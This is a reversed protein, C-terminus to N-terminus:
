PRRRGAEELSARVFADRPSGDYARNAADGTVTAAVSEAFAELEGGWIAYSSPPEVTAGAARQEDLWRGMRASQRGQAVPASREDWVHALEHVFNWRHAAAPRATAEEPTDLDLLLTHPNFYLRDAAYGGRMPNGDRWQPTADWRAGVRDGDPGTELAAAFRAIRQARAGEGGFADAMQEVAERFRRLGLLPWRAPEEVDLGYAALEGAEGACAARHAEIHCPGLALDAPALPAAVPPAEVARDSALAPAPTAAIGVRASTVLPEGHAPRPGTPLVVPRVNLALAVLLALALLLPWIRTTMAAGWACDEGDPRSETADM